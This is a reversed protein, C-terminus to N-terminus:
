TTAQPVVHCWVRRKADGTIPWNSMQNNAVLSCTDRGPSLDFFSFVWYIALYSRSLITTIMGFGLVLGKRGMLVSAFDGYFLHWVM